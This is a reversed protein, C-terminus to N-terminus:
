GPDGTAVRGVRDGEIPRAAPDGHGGRVPGGDCVGSRTVDEGGEGPLEVLETGPSGAEEQLAHSLDGSGPVVRGAQVEVVLERLLIGAFLAEDRCPGVGLLVKPLKELVVGFHHRTAERSFHDM